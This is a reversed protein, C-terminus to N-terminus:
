GRRAARGELVKVVYSLRLVNSWAAQRFAADWEEASYRDVLPALEERIMETAPGITKEYLTLVTDMPTEGKPTATTRCDKLRYLSCPISRRVIFAPGELTGLCTLEWRCRMVTKRCLGTLRVVERNPLCCLILGRDEARLGVMCRERDCFACPGEHGEELVAAAHFIARLVKLANATAGADLLSPLLELFRGPLIDDPTSYDPM